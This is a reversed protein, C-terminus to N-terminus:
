QKIVLIDDIKVNFIASLAVLNDISPLSDGRQWKYIANPIALMLKSQLKSVTLGSEERMKKINKGTAVTDITPIRM